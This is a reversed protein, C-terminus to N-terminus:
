VLEPEALQATALDSAGNLRGKTDVTTGSQGGGANGGEEERLLRVNRMLAWTMRVCLFAGPMQADDPWCDWCVFAM